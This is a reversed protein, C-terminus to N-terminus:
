LPDIPSPSMGNKARLGRALVSGLLTVTLGHYTEYRVPSAQELVDGAGSQVALASIGVALVAPM